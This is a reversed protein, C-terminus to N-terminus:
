ASGTEFHTQRVRVTTWTERKSNTVPLNKYARLEDAVKSMMQSVILEQSAGTLAMKRSVQHLYNFANPKSRTAAAV